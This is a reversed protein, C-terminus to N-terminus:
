SNQLKSKRSRALRCALNLAESYSGHSAKNQGAIGFATGHDPSTRIIPLGATFNVGSNFTLAKFPVLGQDHYMALVADYEKYAHSGFFGDAPFPGRADIGETRVKNIAPEIIEREEDGIVGGDGAHPNLGLVAIRPEDIGFDSVLSRHIVNLQRNIREESLTGAVERIPIHITGPIVRLEKNVLMMVYDTTDTLEALFETHGPFNYGAKQIAEKSIPATVLADAKRDTCLQVACEVAEMALRGASATIQGPSVPIDVESFVEESSLVYLIDPDDAEEVSKIPAYNIDLDLNELQEDVIRAPCILVAIFPREQQHHLSKLVVEPGIGNIDGPTLALVPYSM